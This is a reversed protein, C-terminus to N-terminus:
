QMLRPLCTNHSFGIADFAASARAMIPADCRKPTVNISAIFLVSLGLKRATLSFRRRTPRTRRYKALKQWYEDRYSLNLSPVTNFAKRGSSDFPAM